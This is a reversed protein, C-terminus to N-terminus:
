IRGKSPMEPGRSPTQARRRATAAVPPQSIDWVDILFARGEVCSEFYRKNTPYATRFWYRGELEDLVVILYSGRAVETSLIRRRHNKRHRWVCTRRRGTLADVILPLCRARREIFPVPPADKARRRKTSGTAIHAFATPTFGRVLTGDRAVIRTNSLNKEFYTWCASRKDSVTKYPSLDLQGASTTAPGM